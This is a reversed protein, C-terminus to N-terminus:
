NIETYFSSIRQIANNEPKLHETKRINMIRGTFEEAQVTDCLKTNMGEKSTSKLFANEKILSM